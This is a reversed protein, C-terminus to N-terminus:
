KSIAGAFVQVGPEAMMFANGEIAHLGLALTWSRYDTAFPRLCTDLLM